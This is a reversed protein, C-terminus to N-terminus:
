DKERLGKEGRRAKGAVRAREREILTLKGEWDNSAFAGYSVTFAEYVPIEEEFVYIATARRRQALQQSTFSPTVPVVGLPRFLRNRITLNIDQADFRADQRTAFFSVLVLGPTAVGARDGISDIANQRSATLGHLSTYADPALLRTVREDLPLLRIEIEETRILIALVDQNLTGFGAPPLDGPDTGTQARAGPACSLVLVAGLVGWRETM